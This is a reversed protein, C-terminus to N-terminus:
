SSLVRWGEGFGGEPFSSGTQIRLDFTFNCPQMGGGQTSCSLSLFSFIHNNPLFRDVFCEVFFPVSPPSLIWTSREPPKKTLSKRGHEM